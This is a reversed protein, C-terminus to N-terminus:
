RERVFDTVEPPLSLDLASLSGAVFEELGCRRDRDFLLGARGGDDFPEVVFCSGCFSTILSSFCAGSGSFSASFDASCFGDVEEGAVGFVAGLATVPRLFEQIDLRLELNEEPDVGGDCDLRFPLGALGFAVPGRSWLGNPAAKEGLSLSSSFFSSDFGNVEEDGLPGEKM